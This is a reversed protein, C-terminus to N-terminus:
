EKLQKMYNKPTCGFEERFVRHFTRLSNFGSEYACASLEKEGKRMLLVSERLRLMTVYRGFSTHFTETFYHSLYAPHYGLALATSKLSLEERFHEQLYVLLRTSLEQDIKEQRETLSLHELITGLAVYLHGRKTMESQANKMDQLAGRVREFVERDRIVPNQARKQHIEERFDGCVSLPVILNGLLTGEEIARYGHTDYSFSIVMEGAHLRITRGNIWCEAAGEIVIWLELPSHFNLNSYKGFHEAYGANKQYERRLLFKAEM